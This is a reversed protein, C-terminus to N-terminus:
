PVHWISYEALVRYLDVEAEYIDQAQLSAIQPFGTCMVVDVESAISIAQTYTKSYIDIQIRTNCLNVNSGDLVNENTASVRQYTIFPAQTQDPAAMPYVHAGAATTSCLLTFLKTALSM